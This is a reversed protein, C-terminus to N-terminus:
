PSLSSTMVSLISPSIAKSITSHSEAPALTTAPQRHAYLALQRQTRVREAFGTTTNVNLLM